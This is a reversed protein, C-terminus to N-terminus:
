SGNFMVEFFESVYFRYVDPATTLVYQESRPQASLNASGTVTCFRTQDANSICILKTHNKWALFRARPSHRLIGTILQNCIAAERTKFYPDTAMTLAALRGDDLMDILTKVHNLNATWTSIYAICNTGGLQEVIHPIFSGFDFALPNIGHRIEAGAGNGVVYLDTDPPPLVPILQNLAERKLGSIFERKAARREHLLPKKLQRATELEIGEPPTPDDFLGASFDFSADFSFDFDTM